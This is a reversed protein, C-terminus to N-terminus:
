GARIAERQEFPLVMEYINFVTTERSLHDSNPLNPQIKIKWCHKLNAADEKIVINFSKGIDINKSFNKLGGINKLLVNFIVGWAEPFFITEQKEEM